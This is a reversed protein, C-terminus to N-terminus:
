RTIQELRVEGAEDDYVVEGRLGDLEVHALKGCRTGYRLLVVQQPLATLNEARMIRLTGLDSLYAIQGVAIPSVGQETLVYELVARDSAVALGGIHIKPQSGEIRFIGDNAQWDGLRLTGRGVLSGGRITYRTARASDQSNIFLNNQIRFQGGTQLLRGRGRESLVFPRRAEVLGGALEMAFETKANTAWRVVKESTLYGGTIVLELKTGAALCVNADDRDDALTFMGGAVHLRSQGAAHFQNVTVAGDPVLTLSHVEAPGGLDLRDITLPTDVTLQRSGVSLLGPGAPPPQGASANSAAPSVSPRAATGLSESRGTAPDFRHREAESIRLPQDSSSFSAEVSGRLVAVEPKGSPPAVVEFETGLDVVRLGQSEVLFGRAPEPVVASLKGEHLLVHMDTCLDFRAPGDLTLEVGSALLLSLRGAAIALSGAPLSTGRTLAPQATAPEQWRVDPSVDAVVAVTPAPPTGPRPALRWILGATGLLVCLGIAGALRLLQSRGAPRSSGATTPPPQRPSPLLYDGAYCDHLLERLLTHQALLDAASRDARLAAAVAQTDAETATGDLYAQIQDDLTM